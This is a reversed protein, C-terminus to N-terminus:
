RAEFTYRDRSYTRVQYMDMEWLDRFEFIFRSCVICQIRGTQSMRPDIQVGDVRRIVLIGISGVFGSHIGALHDYNIVLLFCLVRRDDSGRSGTHM